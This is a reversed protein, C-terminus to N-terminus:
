AAHTGDNSISQEGTNEAWVETIQARPKALSGAAPWRLGAGSAPEAVPDYFDPTIRAFRKVIFLNGQNKFYKNWSWLLAGEGM